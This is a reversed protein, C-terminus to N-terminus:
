AANSNTEIFRRIYRLRLHDSSNLPMGIRSVIHKRELPIGFESVLAEQEATLLSEIPQLKFWNLLDLTDADIRTRSKKSSAQKPKPKSKYFIVDLGSHNKGDQFCVQGLARCNILVEAARNIVRRFESPYKATLGLTGEGLKRVDIRVCDKRYFHKALWRYLRLPVERRRGKGIKRVMQMDLTRIFGDQFSKWPIENWVFYCLSQNRRKESGRIQHYRDSSCLEVNDILHFTHSRWAQEGKDWWANKFKFTTGAIRDLSAEIRKYVRGDPNRGITRCLHYRSFFVKRSQFGAEQTIAQLGLLVMEDVPTPLGYAESGIITLKRLTPRKTVRDRVAHEIELTSSGTPNIPGFPFEILNMEDRGLLCPARTELRTCEESTETTFESM